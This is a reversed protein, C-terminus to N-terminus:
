ANWLETNYHGLIPVIRSVHVKITFKLMLCNPYQEALQYFLERWPSFSIMEELWSPTQDWAYRVLVLNRTLKWVLTQMTCDDKTRVTGEETETFILDAKKPDFHRLVLQKLHEEILVQIEKKRCGLWLWSAFPLVALQWLISFGAFDMWLCFVLRSLPFCLLLLESVGASHLWDLLANIMLPRGCYSSSLHKVVNSEKGGM